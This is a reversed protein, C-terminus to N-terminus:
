LQTHKECNMTYSIEPHLLVNIVEENIPIDKELFSELRSLAFKLDTIIDERSSFPIEGSLKVAFENTTSDLYSHLHEGLYKLNNPVDGSHVIANRTRYMRYMHWTIRQSYATIMTNLKKTSSASSLLHIRSRLLPVASLKEFLENRITAYKDLYILYFTKKTECGEIAIQEYIRQYDEPSLNDKIAKNLERIQTSIYEKKLIPIVLALVPGLKSDAGQEQSLIEMASWLNLFGSKLDSVALATNHLEIAKSLMSYENEANNLLGTILFDSQEGIETYNIDEIIAFSQKKAGVFVPRANKEIVMARNQLPLSRKNGVYKYFSFFMDLYSYARKAATNPCRARIGDFYIVIKNRDHKFSNFNGDDEFHVHLRKELITKFNQSITSVSFYVKYEHVKLDFVDLFSKVTDNSIIAGRFFHTNLTVAIFEPDYGWMILEPLFCRLLAEIKSKEKPLNTYKLITDKTWNLYKGNDLTADIYAIINNKTKQNSSGFSKIVREINDKGWNEKLVIDNKFSSIFEEYVATRYHEKLLGSTVDESVKCYESALSHTNLLPMKYLDVASDALMEELRQAFFVIGDSELNHNSQRPISYKM